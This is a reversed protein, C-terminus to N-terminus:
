KNMCTRKTHGPLKCQSCVRRKKPSPGPTITDSVPQVEDSSQNAPKKQTPKPQSPKPCTIDAALTSKCHQRINEYLYWQRALDLGPVDIPEPFGVVSSACTGSKLIKYSQNPSDSYQRLNVIGEEGSSVSFRHYSLINPISRFFKSLFATWQYFKVELKGDTSRILQPIIQGSTTSREAVSVVEALTSVSSRRFLKKFMGFFRDPSFKTHGVIMFSLEMSDHRNTLVRWVLYQIVANNKNQGTCNDAHLYAAREGKTHTEFYHHILSIVCDAGKGPNEAEDILYLVQRSAGDNCVGFLGCKRATKFYEPGTQQADFPIHIQQAFDFSYHALRPEVKEKIATSWAAEAAEVQSNYFYRETKARALHTQATEMRKCKEEESLCASLQISQTNQQCTFCLDSSPTSVSIHPLLQEWLTYFTSRGVPASSTQKCADIYKEYVSIKSLDSPLLLVKDRHGPVRGPLPLAHARAFNTIFTTVKAVADTGVSNAPLRKTNGHVRTAVGAKEYQQVLNDLRKHSMCHLFLFVKKCVPVGHIYYSSVSRFASGKHHTMRVTPQFATSRHARIQALVVLDLEDSLLELNDQRCKEVTERTLMASCCSQKPGMKCGCPTNMFRDVVEQETLDEKSTEHSVPTAQTSVSTDFSSQSPQEVEFSESVPTSSCMPEIQRVPTVPHEM